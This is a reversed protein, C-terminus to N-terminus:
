ALREYALLEDMRAVAEERTISRGEYKKAYFGAVYPKFWDSHELFWPTQPNVRCQIQLHCRQCLALLNWWECNSKDGDCHHVTLIRWEAVICYRDKYAVVAEGASMGLDVRYVDGLTDMGLPGGHTCKEDCPTWQGKGHEGTKYRHGCRICRHGAAERTRDGIEDWDTPYEGQIPLRNSM